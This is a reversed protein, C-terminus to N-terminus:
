VMVESATSLVMAALVDVVERELGPLLSWQHSESSAPRAPSCSASATWAQIWAAMGKHV